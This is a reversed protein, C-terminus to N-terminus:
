KGAEKVDKVGTQLISMKDKLSSTFSKRFIGEETVLEDTETYASNLSKTQKKDIEECNIGELLEVTDVVTEDINKYFDKAQDLEKRMERFVIKEKKQLETLKKTKEASKTFIDERVASEEELIEEIKEIRVFAKTTATDLDITNLFTKDYVECINKETSVIKTSTASTANKVNASEKDSFEGDEIKKNDSDESEFVNTVTDKASQVFSNIAGGIDFALNKSTSNVGSEAM